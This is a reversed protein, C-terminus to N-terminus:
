YEYQENVGEKNERYKDSYCDDCLDFDSDYSGFCYARLRKCVSCKFYDGPECGTCFGKHGAAHHCDIPPQNLIRNSIQHINWRDIPNLIM